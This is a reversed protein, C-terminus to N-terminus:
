PPFLEMIKSEEESTFGPDWAWVFTGRFSSLKERLLAAMEVDNYKIIYHLIDARNRNDVVLFDTNLPNAYEQCIWNVVNIQGQEIAFMMAIDTRFYKGKIRRLHRLLKIMGWEAAGIVYENSELLTGYKAASIWELMRIRGSKLIDSETATSKNYLSLVLASPLRCSYRLTTPSPKPCRKAYM